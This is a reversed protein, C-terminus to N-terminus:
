SIQILRGLKWVKAIKPKISLLHKDGSAVNYGTALSCALIPLDAEHTIYRRATGIATTYVGKEIWKVPLAAIVERAEKKTCSLKEMINRELEDKVHEPAFLNFKGEIAQIILKGANSNTDYLASFLINTDVILDM